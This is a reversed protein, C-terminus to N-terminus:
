GKFIPGEPQGSVDVERRFGSIMCFASLITICLLSIYQRMEHTIFFFNPKNYSNFVFSRETQSHEELIDEEKWLFTYFNKCTDTYNVKVATEHNILNQQIRKELLLEYSVFSAGGLRQVCSYVTCVLTIQLMQFDMAAVMVM